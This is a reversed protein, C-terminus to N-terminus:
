ADVENVPVPIGTYEEFKVQSIFYSWKALKVAYGWPFVGDRLGQMVFEKSKTMLKAALEVPLNVYASKVPVAPTTYAEFYDERVGLARAIERKRAATPEHKGSLYQSIAAKSVGTRESLTSQNLGSEGMAYKLREAFTKM